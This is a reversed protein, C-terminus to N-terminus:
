YKIIFNVYANLPRTENDGNGLTIGTTASGTNAASTMESAGAPFGATGVNTTIIYETVGGSKRNHTHGPDSLALGNKATGHAQVSGVNDGTNGGSNMATRSARDPDRGVAGDVGRMFRGRLDPINFTSGSASGFAEGIATHLDAYTSRSLSSGDCLLYGTPASIGGYPLITGPPILLKAFNTLTVKKLATASTDGTLLEDAFAPSTDETQGNVAAYALKPATVAGNQISATAVADATLLGVVADVTWQTVDVSNKLVFKYSLEPDLWMSCEGNADLVIPNANPTGGGQDTYTAQPTTTGSQYTYLKGGALPNGNSDLYRQKLVPPLNM